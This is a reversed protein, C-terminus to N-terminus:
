GRLRLPAMTLLEGVDAPCRDAVLLDPIGVFESVASSGRVAFVLAISEAVLQRAVSELARASRHDLWQADEIVCVLPKERAVHSLLSFVALGVVVPDSSATTPVFAERLTSRQPESLRDVRDLLQACLHHLAAFALDKDSEVGVVRAVRFGSV